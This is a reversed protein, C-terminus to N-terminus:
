NTLYTEFTMIVGSICSFTRSAVSEEPVFVIIQVGCVRVSFRCGTIYAVIRVATLLQVQNVKISRNYPDAADVTITLVGPFVVSSRAGAEERTVLLAVPITFAICWLLPNLM